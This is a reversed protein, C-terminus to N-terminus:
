DRSDNYFTHSVAKSPKSKQDLYAENGHVHYEPVNLNLNNMDLYLHNYASVKFYYTVGRSFTLLKKDVQKLSNQGIIDNDLCFKLKRESKIHNSNNIPIFRTESTKSNVDFYISSLISDPSIGYHIIYGGGKKVNEEHNSNWELCVKMENDKSQVIKLGVPTEPPLSEIYKFSLSKMSPTYKGSYDSRLVLKWQFYKFRNKSNHVFTKEYRRWAPYSDKKEFLKDSFRYHLEYHTGEPKVIDLDLKLPLSGSNKTSIINSTVTGTSQDATKNEPDYNVKSYPNVLGAFDVEGKGIMFNDLRGYFNRGIYFSSTDNKHFGISYVTPDDESIKAYVSSKRVSNEYLALQGSNPDISIVIHTWNAQKLKDSSKLEFSKTKGKFSFMNHFTAQIKHNFIGLELGYKKGGTIYTRQFISSNQEMQGPQVFLSIYFKSTVMETNWFSKKDMSVAIYSNKSIFSAYRKGLQTKDTIVTYNSYDISYNQNKDKLDDAKSNEFDLFLESKKYKKPALEIRYDNSTIRVIKVRDRNLKTLEKKTSGVFKIEAAILQFSFIM